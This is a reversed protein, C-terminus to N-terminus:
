IIAGLIWAEPSPVRGWVMFAHIAGIFGFAAGTRALWNQAM